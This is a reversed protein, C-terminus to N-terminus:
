ALRSCRKKALARWVLHDISDWSLRISCIREECAACMTVSPDAAFVPGSFVENSRNRGPPRVGLGRAQKRFWFGAACRGVDFLINGAASRARRGSDAGSSVDQREVLGRLQAALTAVDPNPM